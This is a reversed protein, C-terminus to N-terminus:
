FWDQDQSSLSSKKTKFGFGFGPNDMDPFLPDTELIDPELIDSDLTAIKTIGTKVPNSWDAFNDTFNNLLEHSAITVKTAHELTLGLDERVKASIIEPLSHHSRIKAHKQVTKQDIEPTTDQISKQKAQEVLNLRSKQSPLRDCVIFQESQSVTQNLFPSNPAPKGKINLCVSTETMCKASSIWLQNNQQNSNAWSFIKDPQKTQDNLAIPPHDVASDNATSILEVSSSLPQYHSQYPHKSNEEYDKVLWVREIQQYLPKFSTLHRATYAPFDLLQKGESLQTVYGVFVYLPRGHDDKAMVEILNEGLQGILDRVMCTVGIICHSSNKFLSWRPHAALNRAQHTTALIHNFAWSTNQETFDDPTTIFRFDLHHTRGYVVAAWNKRTIKAQFNKEQSM